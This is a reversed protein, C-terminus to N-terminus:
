RNDCFCCTQWQLRIDDDKALRLSATCTHKEIAVLKFYIRLWRFVINRFIKRFPFVNWFIVKWLTIFRKSFLLRVLVNNKRSYFQLVATTLLRTFKTLNSFNTLFHSECM